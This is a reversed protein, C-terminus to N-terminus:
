AKSQLKEIQKMLDDAQAYLQDAASRNSRSMQYAKNMLSDYEKKLQAIPDKKKFIGFM